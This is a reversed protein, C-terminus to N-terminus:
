YLTLISRQKPLHADKKQVGLLTVTYGQLTVTEVYGKYIGRIALAFGSEVTWHPRAKNSNRKQKKSYDKLMKLLTERSRSGEQYYFVSKNMVSRVVKVYGKRSEGGFPLNWRRQFSLKASTYLRPTPHQYFISRLDQTEERQTYNERRKYGGREWHRLKLITRNKNLFVYVDGNTPSLSLSRM